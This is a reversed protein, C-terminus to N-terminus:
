GGFGRIEVCCSDGDRPSKAFRRVAGSEEKGFWGSVFLAAGFVRM